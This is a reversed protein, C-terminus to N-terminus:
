YMLFTNMTQSIREIVDSDTWYDNHCLPNWFSWWKGVNVQVDADVARDYSKGIPKLPYGLIDDKDYLNVWLIGRTDIAEIPDHSLAFVPINCGMTFLAKVRLLLRDPHVQHDWIYDCMMVGGLSHAIVVIPASDDGLKHRLSMMAEEICGQVDNYIENNYGTADGLFNVFYKRLFKWGLKRTTLREWMRRSKEEILPAWHVTQFVVADPKISAERLKAIMDDAFDADQSGIGHIILVGLKPDNKM